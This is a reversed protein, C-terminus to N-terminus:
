ADRFFPHGEINTAEALQYVIDEKSYNSIKDQMQLVMGSAHYDKDQEVSENILENTVMLFANQIRKIVIDSIVRGGHDDVVSSNDDLYRFHDSDKCAIPYNMPDKGDLYLKSIVDMPASVTLFDIAQDKGIKEVLEQYFDTGIVVINNINRPQKEVNLVKSELIKNRKELEDLREQIGQQLEDTQRRQPHIKKRGACIRIHAAHTHKYSFVEGCVTCVIKHHRCIRNIDKCLKGKNKGRTIEMTCSNPMTYLM